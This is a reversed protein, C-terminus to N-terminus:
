IVKFVAEDEACGTHLKVSEQGKTLKVTHVECQDPIAICGRAENNKDYYAALKINGWDIDQVSQAVDAQPIASGGKALIVAPIEEPKIVHWRNGEYEKGNQYDIWLGEPLYVNRESANEEMIPAVLIDSGFLYQDEIFWATADEPYEFFLTRMMPFGNDSSLKAQAYIYPMLKYKLEVSKRFSNMFDDGYAWPEKPPAGHCRSHSTLMGFPTWRRYIEEPSKRVFGGIDHSWFSFGCLGLSLGGRLSAAMGCDTNEADGGWHIPYRQGGAWTSRGWIISGGTEKETVESVAKNYRLPYLNHEYFGSKGSDYAGHYPAAEGFDAKIAEVGIDFLGKLLEQYWKVAKENSFDIVADETPLKGDADLVVYGNEIAERYLENEPTFYPLQWLSIHFGMEKLDSIMKKPDQFRTKSFEYNCRWDTEFWGTDLHIVDCPIKNERLLRAVERTEEESKYTIRSMWLGFSWLPPMPSRGTLATYEALIEKPTGMFIFLDLKNDGVYLTNAQDYSKGMDFTLPSSTHVFMGYGRSSMFFPIPKYMDQNQVGHPDKTWLVLKQGRKNLRTFSEGCGYLKEDPSLTFTAAIHRKLDSNRRVFSFPIPANNQLSKTDFLHQTKTLLKGNADKFEIRMPNRNLIVTGAKSEYKIFDHNEETTWSKDEKPENVLMLSAEEEIKENRVDMRIRITRSNVFSIGFPLTKDRGYAPPFEWSKDEEFPCTFQNFSMRPKMSYRKWLLEGSGTEVDFKVIEMGNFFTNELKEFEKSVDVKNNLFNFDM